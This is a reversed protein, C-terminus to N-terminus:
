VEGKNSWLAEKHDVSTLVKFEFWLFVYFLFFCFSTIMNPNAGLHFVDAHSEKVRDGQIRM